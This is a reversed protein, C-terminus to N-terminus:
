IVGRRFWVNKLRKPRIPLAFVNHQRLALPDLPSQLKTIYLRQNWWVSRRKGAHVRAIYEIYWLSPRNGHALWYFASAGFLVDDILAPPLNM